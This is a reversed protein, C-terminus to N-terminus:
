RHRPLERGNMHPEITNQAGRADMREGFRRVCSGGAEHWAAAPAREFGSTSSATPSAASTAIGTRLTSALKNAPPVESVQDCRAAVTSGSYTTLVSHSKAPTPTPTVTTPTAVAHSVVICSNGPRRCRRIPAPAAAPSAPRRSRTRRCRGAAIRRVPASSGARSSRSAARAVVPKGLDAASPPAIAM